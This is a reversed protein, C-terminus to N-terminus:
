GNAVTGQTQSSLYKKMVRRINTVTEDTVHLGLKSRRWLVDEISRAWEQKILYYIEAEYVGDGLDEGLDKLNRSRKLILRAREGYARGLRRLLDKPLASYERSFSKFFTDFNIANLAGGPLVAKKTWPSGSRGLEKMVMNVAQESLKRYTTIKGGYVSLISANAVKEVELLYDRTVESLEEEGDDLLPRVGSYSWLVDEKCIQQEFYNNVSQCLYQIEEESIQVKNPDDHFEQDTTGILSFDGEYPIVFVIREDDNQLIYAHDEAYLRPVIIHSGKVLRIQHAGINGSYKKLMESVWPGTANVVCRAQVEHGQNSVKDHILAKWIKTQPDISLELCETRTFIGAGRERADMANLVVLRSDEVWCDSYRFGKTYTKQLPSGYSSKKLSVGKSSSLLKRGGLHDYIFLGLRIFWAPRLQKHHPLIFDLPWIIHPASKLLTEREKLAERVLRFKFQELYRLGGHVLKTSASSTASALDEKECLMVTLGRGAADRAIGAGNIGGGIVLLDLVPQTALVISGERKM